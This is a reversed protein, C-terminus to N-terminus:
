LKMDDMNLSLGTHEEPSTQISPTRSVLGYHINELRVSWRLGQVISKFRKKGEKKDIKKNVVKVASKVVKKAKKVTDIQMKSGNVGLDILKKATGKSYKVFRDSSPNKICLIKGSANKIVEYVGDSPEDPNMPIYETGYKMLLIKPPLGGDDPAEMEDCRHRGKNKLFDGNM